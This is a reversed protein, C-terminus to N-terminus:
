TVNPTERGPGASDAPSTDGVPSIDAPSTGDVGPSTDEIGPSTDAPSSSDALSTDEAGTDDAAEDGADDLSADSSGDGAGSDSADSNGSDSGVGSDGQEGAPGAGNGVVEAAAFSQRAAALARELEAAALTPPDFPRRRRRHGLALTAVREVDAETTISRGEWGAFAAAARCLVLDGRLGDAGVSVALHCAFDVVSTPLDAPMAAALRARIVIDGDHGQVTGGTDHTLRRRVVEARALPDAPAKVEVSLGFRDLLQPGLEGEEPSMSGVLVFRAPHEHWVGNREVRNVGSAAVDLLGAVLHDRLLNVADVYLVGGSAAAVLGPRFQAHGDAWAAEHESTGITGLVREETAGLPVEVFPAGGPLLGALGRALTSRASGKEGRLLVGGIAPDVAGLLLALRAEEQGVVASFPFRRAPDVRRADGLM